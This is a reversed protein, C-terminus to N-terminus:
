ARQRSWTSALMHLCIDAHKRQYAASHEPQEAVRCCRLMGATYELEEMSVAWRACRDVLFCRNGRDRREHADEVIENQKLLVLLLVPEIQDLRLEGFAPRPVFVV